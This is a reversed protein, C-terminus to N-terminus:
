RVGGVQRARALGVAKADCWLVQEARVRFHDDLRATKWYRTRHPRLHVERSSKACRAPAIAPFWPTSSWEGRALARSRGTRSTGGRPWPSWALWNSSKLGSCPSIQQPRGARPADRLLAALGGQEDRRCRRWVTAEHCPLQGPWRQRANDLVLLWIMRAHQVQLWPLSRSRAM